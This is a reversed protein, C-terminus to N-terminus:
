PPDCVSSRFPSEESDHQDLSSFFSAKILYNFFFSVYLGFCASRLVKHADSSSKVPFGEISVLQDGIHLANYLM